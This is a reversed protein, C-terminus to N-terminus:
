NKVKCTTKIALVINILYTSGNRQMFYAKNAPRM